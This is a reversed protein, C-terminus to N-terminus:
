MWCSTATHLLRAAELADARFRVSELRKSNRPRHARYTETRRINPRPAITFTRRLRIRKGNRIESGLAVQWFVKKNVLTKRPTFRDRKKKNEVSAQESM